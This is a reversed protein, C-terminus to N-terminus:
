AARSFRDTIKFFSMRLPFDYYGDFMTVVGLLASRWVVPYRVKQANQSPATKSNKGSLGGTAALVNRPV